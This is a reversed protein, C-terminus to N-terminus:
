TADFEFGPTTCESCTMVDSVMECDNCAFVDCPLCANM